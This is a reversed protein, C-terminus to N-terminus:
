AVRTSALLQQVDKASVNIQNLVSTDVSNLIQDKIFVTQEAAMNADRIQSESATTNNMDIAANGGAEQMAVMQAGVAARDSGLETIGQDIRYEASTTELSSQTVTVQNVALNTSNIAPIDATVIDGEARGVNAQMAQGSAKTQTPVTVITAGAGVDEAFIPNFQVDIIPNGYQDTIGIPPPFTLGGGFDILNTGADVAFKTTQQPGFSPDPSSAIVTCNLTPPATTSDYSDVSMKVTVTQATPNVFTLSPDFLTTTPPNNGTTSSKLPPNVVFLAQAPKPNQSSLSGDLLTRGNFQTKASISDIQARLQDLETQISQLDTASNIDTNARVVLSRMRQLINSITQMAGEAVTLANNADQISQQGQALGDARSRMTEAIALGSPDDSASNIRLGSSLRASAIGLAQQRMGQNLNVTNDLRTLSALEM